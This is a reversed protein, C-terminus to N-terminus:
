LLLEVLQVDLAREMEAEGVDGEIREGRQQGVPVNADQDVAVVVKAAALARKRLLQRACREVERREDREVVVAVAVDPLEARQDVDLRRRDRERAALRSRESRM